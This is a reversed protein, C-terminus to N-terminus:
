MLLHLVAYHGGSPLMGVGIPVALLLWQASVRRHERHERTANGEDGPQRKGGPPLQGGADARPIHDQKRRSRM